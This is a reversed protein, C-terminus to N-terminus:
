YNVGEYCSGVMCCIYVFLSLNQWMINQIAFSSDQNPYLLSNLIYLLLLLLSAYIGFNISCDEFAVMIVFLSHNLICNMIISVHSHRNTFCTVCCMLTMISFIVFTIIKSNSDGNISYIDWNSIVGKPCTM